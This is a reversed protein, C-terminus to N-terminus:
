ASPVFAFLVEDVYDGAVYRALRRIGEPKLWKQYANVAVANTVVSSAEVRHYGLNDFVRERVKEAIRSVTAQNRHGPRIYFRITACRDRENATLALLGITQGLSEVAWEETADGVDHNAAEVPNERIEAYIQTLRQKEIPTVILRFGVNEVVKVATKKIASRKVSAKKAVKRKHNVWGKKAAASREASTRGKKRTTTKKKSTM